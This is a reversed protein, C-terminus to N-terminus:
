AILWQEAILKTLSYSGDAGSVVIVAKNPYKDCYPQYISGILGDQGLTMQFSPKMTLLKEAPSTKIKVPIVDM